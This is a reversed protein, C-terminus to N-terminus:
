QWLLRKAISQWLGVFALHLLQRLQPLTETGKLAEPQTFVLHLFRLNSFQVVQLIQSLVLNQVKQIKKM